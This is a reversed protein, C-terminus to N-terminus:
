ENFTVTGSIAREDSSIPIDETDDNVLLDYFDEIGPVLTLMADIKKYEVVGGVGGTGIQSYYQKLVQIFANNVEIPDFGEKFFGTYSVNIEKEIWTTVTVLAGIPAKGGGNRGDPAIYAQVNDILTQNALAGNADEIIVKVTSPGDWEPLVIVNGVGPVEKAWREYDRKAGSLPPNQYADLLRERFSEDDEPETGGTAPEPNIVSKVGNISTVFAIITGADVNGSIGAKVAEVQLDIVETGDVDGRELTKFEIVEQTGDSPVIAITGAPIPTGPVAEVRITTGAKTAEKEFISRLVGLYRLWQGYSYQPLATKLVEILKMSVMEAKEIATPRTADWAFSGEATSIDAPFGRLMRQHIEDETEQLFDPIPMEKSSLHDGGNM